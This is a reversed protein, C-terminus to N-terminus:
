KLAHIALKKFKRNLKGNKSLPQSITLSFVSLSITSLSPSSYRPLLYWTNAIIMIVIMATTFKDSNRKIDTCAIEKLYKLYAMIKIELAFLGSKRQKQLFTKKQHRVLRGALM